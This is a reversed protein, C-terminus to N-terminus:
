RTYYADYQVTGSSKWVRKFQMKGLSDLMDNLQNQGIWHPSIEIFIGTINESLKSKLLEEIVVAEYGEVDIKALVPTTGIKEKIEDFLEYNKCEVNVFDGAIGERLNAKGLNRPTISLPLKENANAIACNFPTIKQSSDSFNKQINTKLQEFVVPNPEIPIINKCKSNSAAILSFLGFNAGIDIFCFGNKKKKIIDNLHFGWTGAIAMLFTADAYNDKLWIKYVSLTFRDSNNHVDKKLFPIHIEWLRKFVSHVFLPNIKHLLRAYLNLLTTRKM